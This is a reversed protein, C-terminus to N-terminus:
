DSGIIELAKTCLEPDGFMRVHDLSVEAIDGVGPPSASTLSVALDGRLVEDPLTITDLRSLARRGFETSKLPLLGLRGLRVAGSVSKELSAAKSESLARGAFISYRDSGRFGSNLRSLFLSDPLLDYTIQGDGDAIADKFTASMELKVGKLVQLLELAARLRVLDSGFHPTGFFVIRDAPGELVEAYYRAVLGGASHVIFDPRVDDPLVRAVERRLYRASRALSDDNPYRFGLVTRGPLQSQALRMFPHLGDRNAEMGHIFIVPPHQLRGAGTEVPLSERGDDDLQFLGYAADDITGDLESRLRNLRRCLQRGRDSFSGPDHERNLTGDAADDQLAPEAELLDLRLLDLADNPEFGAAECLALAFLDAARDQREDYALRILEGRKRVWDGHKDQFLKGGVNGLWGQDRDDHLLLREYGQRAHHRCIHGMEHAVLFAIAPEFRDFSRFPDLMATTLYIRGAGGTFPVFDGDDILTVHFRKGPPLLSEPVHESLRVLISQIAEPTGAVAHEATIEDHVKEALELEEEPALEVRSVLWSTLDGSWEAAERAFTGTPIRGALADIQARLDPTINVGVRNFVRLYVAAGAALVLLAAVCCVVARLPIGHSRKM